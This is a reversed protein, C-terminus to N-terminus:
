LLLGPRRHRRHVPRAPGDRPGPGLDAIPDTTKPLTGIVASLADAVAEAQHDGRPLSVLMVFRTSREVLTVIPSMGKGFVLDGEPGANLRIWVQDIAKPTLPEFDGHAV